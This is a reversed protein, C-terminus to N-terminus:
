DQVLDVKAVLKHKPSSVMNRFMREYRLSEGGRCKKAKMKWKHIVTTWGEM